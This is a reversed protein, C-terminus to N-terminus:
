EPAPGPFQDRLIRKLPKGTPNRPIEDIFAVGKPLKFGALKHRCHELINDPDVAGNSAVVVAFPSEGWAESPQGIVAADAVEPHSLLVNEIEAPYVNEGGSIIMDKLRDHITVYGDEDAIGIDGTHLWGDILMEATADPNKWYGIMNHAGKLLIQGPVGPAVDNGHDDVIRVDTLLYGKGTSGLRETAEDGPLYCGPGFSETMGYVQHIEINLEVYANILEVPVPSAGTMIGRLSSYDRSKFDPVQLMFNLMAPVALASTIRESQFVDWTATPDFQRMLVLTSGNYMHLLLPTSAGVHFLPLAVLYREEPGLDFTSLCNMIGAMATAHSHVVGKPLGTTGSTYVITLLDDGSINSQPEDTSEATRIQEHSIAWDRSGVGDIEVFTELLPVEARDSYIEDTVPGFEKGFFLAKSESNGLIFKLETATLRWNLPVIVAGIKAAAYYTEVFEISNFCLLAIKEGHGIGLKTLAHATQNVRDNLQGYSLRTGSELDVMAETHPRIWARRRLADAINTLM